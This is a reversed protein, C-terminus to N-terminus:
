CGARVTLPETPRVDVSAGLARRHKLHRVVFIRYRTGCSIETSCLERRDNNPYRNHNEDPDSRRDPQRDSEQNREGRDQADDRKTRTM